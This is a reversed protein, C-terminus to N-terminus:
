VGLLLMALGCGCIVMGSMLHSGHHISRVNKSRKIIAFIGENFYMMRSDIIMLCLVCGIMTTITGLTYAIILSLIMGTHIAEEAMLLAILPECPGLIFILFLPTGFMLFSASLAKPKFARYFYFMGIFILGWAALEIRLDQIDLAVLLKKGLYIAPLAMLLSGFVHGLGCITTFFITRRATWKHSKALSWFTLYHDPGTFTHLFAIGVVLYFTTTLEIIVM